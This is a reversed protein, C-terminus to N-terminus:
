RPSDSKREFVLLPGNHQSILILTKGSGHMLSAMARGQGRVLFGSLNLTQFKMNEKDLFFTLGKLADYRGTVTENGFFNGIALLENENSTFGFVPAFQAEIPLPILKFRGTSDQKLYSTEFTEGELIIAQELDVGHFFQDMRFSGYDSYILFRNKWSPIQSVVADRGPVAFYGDEMFQFLIPDVSQNQDFDKAILKLPSEPSAKWRINRGFNGLLYEPRGDGDLDKPFISTWWGKSHEPGIQATIDTFIIKGNHHEQRFFKIPMWEGTLIFDVKGDQDFDTWRAASVLGIQNLDPCLEQTVDIFKGGMNKLLKSSAPYPYKGPVIRGGILIDTLGDGDFDFTSVSSGSIPLDPLLGEKLTFNGKGDNLYIRDQYYQSGEEYRSGGSVLYLDLDGDQDLDFLSSEMDDYPYEEALPRKSFSGNKEQLFFVGPNNQSGGVFFDELGDGNVDGVTIGPGNESHKHPLLRQRNFDKYPIHTHSHNIGLQNSVERYYPSPIEQREPLLQPTANTYSLVLRQNPELDQLIQQKGDPWLIRLSTVKRAQGLGFHPYPEVFSKYGRTPYHEYYIAQKANEKDFEVWIKAGFGQTNSPPGQLQVKLYKAKEPFKEASLNRYIFAKDNLNNIILDLDGDNDLDAYAVGNSISPHVIGWEKSKDEFTLDTNNKFVFNNLRVEKLKSLGELQLKRREEPTTFPGLNQTFNIYDLDTIDKGYGNSIFVDRWGDNDLDAFLPSWSWDTQSVGALFGIESFIGKGRNLQLTNRAYQPEYGLSLNAQYLDYNETVAFMTKQRINDPPFMDVVLIDALSDNNFDAIDVGMANFSQHDLMDSIQNEFTGDGRNIYLIDNTLFDNAVYIDPFGDQNIDAISIGLGYGEILIGAELSVDSFSGDGNNRYLKDNSKGKGSKNRPRSVNRQFSELANSLLYVDLDGDLDYDFFAAQTNYGRDALGFVEAMEKFRPVGEENNGQNIFLLNPDPFTQDRNSVSLYIDLLGDNNIDVLTAGEIWSSTSVRAQDTVDLFTFNGQNLYLRSSVQNGTFFIDTLGDGNFDGAAVGGGNYIYDFDLVNFEETISIENSFTVGTQAAPM